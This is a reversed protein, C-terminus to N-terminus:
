FVPFFQRTISGGNLDNELGLGIKLRKGKNEMKGELLLAM